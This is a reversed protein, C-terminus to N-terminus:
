YLRVLNVYLGYKRHFWEKMLDGWNDGFMSVMNQFRYESCRLVPVEYKTASDGPTRQYQFTWNDDEFDEDINEYFNKVDDGVYRNKLSDWYDYSRDTSDLNEYNKMISDFINELKQKKIEYKMIM